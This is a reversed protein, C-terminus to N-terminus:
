GEKELWVEVVDIFQSAQRLDIEAKDKSNTSSQKKGKL